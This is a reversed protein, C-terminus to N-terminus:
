RTAGSATVTRTRGMSPARTDIPHISDSRETVPRSTALFWVRLAKSASSGNSKRHWSFLSNSFNRKTKLLFHVLRRIGDANRMRHITHSNNRTLYPKFLLQEAPVVYDQTPRRSFSYPQRGSDQRVDPQYTYNGTSPM